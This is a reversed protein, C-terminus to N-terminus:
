KGLTGSDPLDHKRMIEEVRPDPGHHTIGFCLRRSKTRVTRALRQFTLPPSCCAAWALRLSGRLRHEGLCEAVARQYQAMAYAEAAWIARRWAPASRRAAQFQEYDLPPLGTLERQAQQCVYALRARLEGTHRANTSGAHMRYRLLPRDLNALEARRGMCLFMTWDELVGDPRYGGVERLLAARGMLTPNCLAHRGCLLDALIAGHETPLSSPRGARVAGLPRFQTGLLGVRPHERLFMWQEELRTPEAVDDADMRAFLATQCRALARNSAAAPGEHAQRLVAIRPDDLGRLYDASGDTSGDDVVLLRWDRLSQRRLSEVAEPLFPLANYVPMFVTLQAM